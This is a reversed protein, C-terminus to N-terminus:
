GPERVLALYAERLEPHLERSRALLPLARARLRGGLERADAVLARTDVRTPRGGEVVVQGDVLVTQVARGTEGYVVQRVPDNLPALHPAAADLLVLDARKGPEISGIEGDLGLARAGGITAMRFADEASVWRDGDPEALRHVCAALKMVEFLPGSAGCNPGDTGLGVAIGRRLLEPVRAIGSGLYLNSLPNHSVGAGAAALRDMDGDTL